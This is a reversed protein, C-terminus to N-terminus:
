PKVLHKVKEAYMPHVKAEKDCGYNVEETKFIKGQTFMCEVTRRVNSEHSIFGLINGNKDKRLINENRLLYDIAKQKKIGAVSAIEAYTAKGKLECLTIIAKYVPDHRPNM